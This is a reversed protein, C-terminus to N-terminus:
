TSWLGANGPSLCSTGETSLPPTRGGGDTGIQLAENALQEAQDTDGATLSRGACRNKHIWSFTPQRLDEALAGALNVCHDSEDLDGARQAVDGRWVAAWFLLVPDGVREARVSRTPLGLSHRGSCPQFESRSTSTTSSGSWSRTTVARTRLRSRKRQWPGAPDRAPQRLDTGRGPHRARPGSRPGEAPLRDLAMELVAVKDADVGGSTM